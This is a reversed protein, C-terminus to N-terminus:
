EEDDSTSESEPPEKHDRAQLHTFPNIANIDEGTGWPLILGIHPAYPDDGGHKYPKRGRMIRLENPTIAMATMDTALRKEVVSPDDPTTDDWWIRLTPDEYAESFYETAAQGLMRCLPNIANSCFLNNAALVAQGNVNQIVGAIVAPVKFLALIDDRIQEASDKYDMERPTVSLKHLKVGPPLIMPKGARVEGGYRAIFKAEIRDLDETSPDFYQSDFELAVQPFAQNKFTFFRTREISTQTDIWQSGATLPSYGDLKSISSKYKFHIVEDAPFRRRLYNGEAPRLDYYDVAGDKNFVPWTWHSPLVWIAAPLGTIKNRAVWWYASGTLLLFLITESWLDFSTDPDNPNRFLDILPHDHSVPTIDEQGFLPTLAKERAQIHINWKQPDPDRPGVQGVNPFQGAIRNSILSIAIYVWHKYARVQDLRSDTWANMNPGVVPAGEAFSRRPNGRRGKSLGSLARFWSGFPM